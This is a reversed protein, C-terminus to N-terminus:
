PQLPSSSIPPPITICTELGLDTLVAFRKQCGRCQGCALNGTHCSHTIALIDSPLKTTTALELSSMQIAPANIRIGGEQYSVTQDLLSFFKEAADRHVADSRVCGVLLEQIGFEVARMACFTVLLQNRFPWWEPTPSGELRPKGSLDGSGLSRCDVSITEHRIDLQAAVLKAANIEAVAPLQGYNVTFLVAPRKWFALATSDLGGSLLLGTKVRKKGV